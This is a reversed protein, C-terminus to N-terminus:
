FFSSEKISINKVHSIKPWDEGIEKECRKGLESCGWIELSKLGIFSQISTPLCKLKLCNLIYLEQLSSLNGLSDPLSALNPLDWLSLSQLSTLHQLAEDLGEIQSCSWIILEKLSTLNRLMGDSFCTLDEINILVLFALNGLKHISSLLHQNCKGEIRMINLSPICNLGLLNPCEIIKLKSLHPFMNETDERSLRILNPLKKLSLKKLAIFCGAVGSGPSENDVYMLRSMNSVTLEKLSHLKALQPLHLCSECGVLELSNLDKLSPSSMWRPFQAGIYGEVCLGQLKQTHAPQLVELIKEVNEQLQSEETREWSLQLHSLHKSLMNAEKADEASKVRELHKIHLEGKLNLQGLETLLFGREKGVVYMSLTRLSTLKGIQPPLSSLNTCYNLSLHHLAKLHILNNPLNRLSHCRDLKLIHLNWLMCISEPLTEFNGLSLNLYRLYKLHGISSPVEKIIYKLELARLSYCRLIHPLLKIVDLGVTPMICTKLSKCSCLRILDIERFRNMHFSLHRIREFMSTMGSNDTICCVEESVSQALDHVLDHMKFKTINGFRDKEIDQFFSRRYLENWVENCIDEEDLMENPSIFGNAMWLEILFQKSIREDKPFLACFAFCQRLKVPLNLYSLRLAPMVYDEDQLSWLKSEKVYLWETEKRKFRLLSGLAIAALPVGGCKKIIELGIVVLEAAEEENPAFARQKFLEWCDKDSLKSIDHLPITGMIEAVKALRTTVLISAGTGGCALVSRLRQWNEQKDDWVDDLVLLFRKRQIFDQLKRQLLELDLDECAHGSASELIARTMRKLSFDESVCVWMRLEFHKVVRENNFILQALTTKGLGGLGVIPYVSLGEFCSADHVMFDIIKNKDEERGYVQPQTIISTTQRWDFVGSRNERVTETLHFKTREEAIEDLRKRISKMKKAVKYRFAVHKPHLSSLFSSQVKDTLGAKYRKYELELAKTACEDLIDDLVHAADKLKLLWDELARNSFQQEEADDLTAKITTLLSSLSNFDQQFDLFISIEKHILSSLNNLVVELVAEAM